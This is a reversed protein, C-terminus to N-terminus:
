SHFLNYDQLTKLFISLSPLSRFKQSGASEDKRMWFREDCM